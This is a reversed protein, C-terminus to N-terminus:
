FLLFRYAFANAINPEYIAKSTILALTSILIHLSDM